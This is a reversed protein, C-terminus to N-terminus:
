LVDMSHETGLTLIWRFLYHFPVLKLMSDGGEAKQQLKVGANGKAIRRIQRIACWRRVFVCCEDDGIEM